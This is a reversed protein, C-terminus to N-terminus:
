FHFYLVCNILGIPTFSRCRWKLVDELEIELDLKWNTESLYDLKTTPFPGDNIMSSDFEINM